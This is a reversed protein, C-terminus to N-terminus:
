CHQCKEKPETGPAPPAPAPAPWATPGGPVTGPPGAPAGLALPRPAGPSSLMRFLRRATLSDM